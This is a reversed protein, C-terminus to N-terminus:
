NIQLETFKIDGGPLVGLNRANLSDNKNLYSIGLNIYYGSKSNKSDIFYKGEPTKSDGEKIKHGKPNKGLSINYTKIKIILNNKDKAYINM